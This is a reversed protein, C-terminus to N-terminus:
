AAITRLHFSVCNSASLKNTNSFTEWSGACGIILSKPFWLNVGTENFTPKGSFLFSRGSISIYLLPTWRTNHLLYISSEGKSGWFSRLCVYRNPVIFAVLKAWGDGGLPGSSLQRRRPAPLLYSARALPSANLQWRSLKTKDKPSSM